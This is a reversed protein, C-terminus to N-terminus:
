AWGDADPRRVRVDLCGAQQRYDAVGTKLLHRYFGQANALPYKRVRSREIM